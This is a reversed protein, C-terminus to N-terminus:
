KIIEHKKMVEIAKDNLDIAKGLNGGLLSWVYNHDNIMGRFDYRRWNNLIQLLEKKEDNTFELKEVQKILQDCKKPTIEQTGWIQNKDAVIYSNAMEHMDKLVEEKTRLTIKEDNTNQKNNKSESDKNIKDNTQKSNISANNKNPENFKIAIGIILVVVILIVSIIFIKKKM